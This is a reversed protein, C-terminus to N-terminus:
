TGDHILLPKHLRHKFLLCDFFLEHFICDRSVCVYLIWFGCILCYDPFILRYLDTADDTVTQNALGPDPEKMIWVYYATEEQFHPMM